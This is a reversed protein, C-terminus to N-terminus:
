GRGMEQLKQRLELIERDKATLAQDKEAIVPQYKAEALKLGNETGEEWGKERGEDFWVEKAEDLNWEELLMNMVESGHETLFGSLVGNRACHRIAEAVAQELSMAGERERVQAVFEAYGALSESRKLLKDNRGKNINYMKVRLDLATKNGRDDMIFATSLREEWYDPTDEKGNYLVIFEPEPIKVLTNRYMARHDVIKEYVRAIYLLVRLPMNHNLTSQHEVIVVLRGEVVFSLDNIRDMYLVDGLTTIVISIEPDWKEGTLAVYLERIKDKDDFLATFVSNKLERNAKM